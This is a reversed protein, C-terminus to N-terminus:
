GQASPQTFNEWDGIYKAVQDAIFGISIDAYMAQVAAAGALEGYQLNDVSATCAALMEATEQTKQEATITVKGKARMREMMRNNQEAQAQAYQKSGPGYLHAIVPKAADGDAYILQGAADRLHLAATPSVALKRIDM